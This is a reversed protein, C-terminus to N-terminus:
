WIRKEAVNWSASLIIEAFDLTIVFTRRLFGEINMGIGEPYFSWIQM